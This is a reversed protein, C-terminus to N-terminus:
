YDDCRLQQTQVIEVWEGQKSKYQRSQPELRSLGSVTRTNRREMPALITSEYGLLHHHFALPTTFCSRYSDGLLAGGWADPYGPIREVREQISTDVLQLWVQLVWVVNMSGRDTLASSLRVGLWPTGHRGNPTRSTVYCCTTCHQISFGNAIMMSFIRLNPEQEDQV